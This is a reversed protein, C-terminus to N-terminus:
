FNIFLVMKECGQIADVINVEIEPDFKQNLSGTFQM